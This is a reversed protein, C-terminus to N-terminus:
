ADHKAAAAADAENDFLIVHSTKADDGWRGLHWDSIEGIRKMDNLKTALRNLGPLNPPAVAYLLEHM